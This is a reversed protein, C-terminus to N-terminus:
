HGIPCGHGGTRQAVSVEYVGRRIELIPDDSPEIGDTLMTPDHNMVPDGIEEKTITDKLTLRGITVKKRDEPWPASPDNLPDGQEALDLVLDFSVPERKLRQEMEEYLIEISEKQISTLPQGRVGAVPVWHCRAPTAVNDANIYFFVHLAYFETHAFSVPAPGGARIKFVELSNPNAGLFEELGTMNLKENKTRPKIAELFEILQEISNVFFLKQSIMVLNTVRGDPLYFRTAMGVVDGFPAAPDGGGKSFRVSVPIEDGQMHIARTYQRAIPDAQFMGQYIKGSAHVARFGPHYGAVHHLKEVIETARRYQSNQAM